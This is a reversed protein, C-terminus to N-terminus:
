LRSQSSRTDGSSATGAGGYGNDLRPLASDKRAIETYFAGGKELDADGMAFGPAPPPEAISTMQYDPDEYVFDEEGLERQIYSDLTSAGASTSNLVHDGRRSRNFHQRVRQASAFVYNNRRRQQVEQTAKKSTWFSYRFMPRLSASNVAVIGVAFERVGWRAINLVFIHPVVTLSVRIICAALVFLGSALLIFVAIRTRLPKNLNWLLSVPVSLLFIDTVANVCSTTILINPSATCSIPPPPSVQWRKHYPLCRLSLALTLGSFGSACLVTTLWLVKRQWPEHFIREYFILVMGKLAFILVLYAYWSGLFLKSGYVVEAFKKRDFNAVEQTTFDSSTGTYYTVHIIACSYTWAALVVLALADDWRLGKLGDVRIRVVYRLAIWLTGLSYLGWVEPLFENDRAPAM